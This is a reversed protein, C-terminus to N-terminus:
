IEEDAFVFEVFNFSKKLPEAIYFPFFSKRSLGRGRDSHQTPKTILLKTKLILFFDSVNKRFILTNPLKSLESFFKKKRKSDMTSSIKMASYNHLM